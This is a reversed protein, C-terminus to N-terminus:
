ATPEEGPRVSDEAYYPNAWPMTRYAATAQERMKAHMDRIGEPDGWVIRDIVRRRAEESVGEDAMAREAMDLTRRLVETQMRQAPNFLLTRRMGPQQDLHRALTDDTFESM